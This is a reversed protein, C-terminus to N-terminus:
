QNLEEKMKVLLCPLAADPWVALKSFPTKRRRGTSGCEIPDSDLFHEVRRVTGTVLENLFKGPYDNILFLTM